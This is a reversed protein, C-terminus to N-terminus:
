FTAGDSFPGGGLPCGGVVLQHALPYATEMTEADKSQSRDQSGMPAEVGWGGALWGVVRGVMWGVVLGVMWGVLGGVLWGVLWGAAWGVVGEGGVPPGIGWESLEVGGIGIQDISTHINGHTCSKTPM